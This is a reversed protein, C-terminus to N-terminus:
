KIGRKKNVCKDCRLKNPKTTIFIEGCECKRRFKYFREDVLKYYKKYNKM